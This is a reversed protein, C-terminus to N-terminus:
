YNNDEASHADLRAEYAAQLSHRSLCVTAKTRRAKIEGSAKDRRACTYGVNGSSM